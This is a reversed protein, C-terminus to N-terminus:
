RMCMWTSGGQEHTAKEDARVRALERELAVAGDQHSRRTNALENQLSIIKEKANVEQTHAEGLKVQLLALKDEAATERAEIKSLEARLAASRADTKTEDNAEVRDIRSQLATIQDQVVSSVPIGYIREMVLVDQNSHSWFIKPVYLLKSNEFNNRLLSTNAGESQLNLEEIIVNDYDKIVEVPHLRRGDESYM